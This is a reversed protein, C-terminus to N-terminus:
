AAPLRIEARFGRPERNAFHVEGGCATVASCVISLGLGVGGAERTRAVDPRYFPEGLRELAEPPVGPGEDEVAICVADGDRRATVMIIGQEGAYRLANRILNGLARTLLATDARVRLGEEIAAAVRAGAGERTAVDHALPALDIAALEAPPPKLGAKTFALLENVLGSMQQVEERVDAVQPKLPADARAELIEIAVQLRGLPSGLEHAVDGLFKKQGNVLSDLRGAMTNVSAGLAGLEDNRTAAVRVDFKGDAIRETAARLRRIDRTLWLVPPLWFLISFLLVGSAGLLWPQLGLLRLVAWQSTTRAVLTIPESRAASGSLTAPVRTGIWYAPPAGAHVLFRGRAQDFERLAVAPGDFEPPPGRKGAGDPPPRKGGAGPPGIRGPGRAPPREIVRSHVEPPLPAALNAPEPLQPGFAYFEVGHGAAARALVTAREAAPAAAFEQVLAVAVTQYAQGLPGRILSEWGAARQAFLLALAAAGLLALHLLLWLSFKLSLPFRVSM